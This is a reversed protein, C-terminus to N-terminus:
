DYDLGLTITGMQAYGGGLGTRSEWEALLARLHEHRQNRQESTGADTTTATYTATMGVRLRLVFVVAKDFDFDAAAYEAQLQADTLYDKESTGVVGGSFMRLRTLLAASLTTM